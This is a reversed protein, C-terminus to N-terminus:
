FFQIQFCQPSQSCSVWGQMYSHKLITHIKRLTHTKKGKTEKCTGRACLKDESFNIQFCRPARSSCAASIPHFIPGRLAKTLLMGYSATAASRTPKRSLTTPSPPICEACSFFFPFLRLLPLAVTCKSSSSFPSSTCCNAVFLLNDNRIRGKLTFSSRCTTWVGLCLKIRKSFLKSDNAQKDFFSSTRTNHDDFGVTFVSNSKAVRRRRNKNETCPVLAHFSSYLISNM